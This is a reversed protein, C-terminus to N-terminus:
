KKRGPKKTTKRKARETTSPANFMPATHGSIARSTPLRAKRFAECVAQTREEIPADNTGYSEGTSCNTWASLRQWWDNDMVPYGRAAITTCYEPGVVFTPRLGHCVALTLLRHLPGLTGVM